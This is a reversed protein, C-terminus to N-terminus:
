SIGCPCGRFYFLTGYYALISRMFLLQLIWFLYPEITDPYLITGDWYIM